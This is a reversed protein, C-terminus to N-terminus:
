SSDRVSSKSSQARRDLVAREALRLYALARFRWRARTRTRHDGTHELALRARLLARFGTYLRVLRLPVRDGSERRYGSLIRRGVSEGGLRSCELALFALEDVPDVERLERNFELCDIIVPEIGLCIHEPRLDGHGDVIRGRTVRSALLAASGKILDQVAEALREVRRLPLGQSGATLAHRDFEIEETLRRRYSDPGLRVRRAHRYFAVLRQVLRDVAADPVRGAVILRDLMLDAPLRRMRVLWDVVRGDGGLHLGGTRDQTLPVVGLYVGPALRRNLRVETRCIRERAALTSYDLYPKRVPKKLKWAQGGALFVWAMHTEIRDVRDVAIGYSDPRSLFEVQIRTGPLSIRRTM